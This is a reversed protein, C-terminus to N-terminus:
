VAFFFGLRNSVQNGTIFVKGDPLLVANAFARAYAVSAITAVSPAFLPVHANSDEYALGRVM